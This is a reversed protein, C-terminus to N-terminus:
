FLLKKELKCCYCLTPLKPLLAFLPALAFWCPALLRYPKAAPKAALIGEYCEDILENNLGSTFSRIYIITCYSLCFWICIGYRSSLWIIM